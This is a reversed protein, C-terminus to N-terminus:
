QEKEEGLDLKSLMAWKRGVRVEASDDMPPPFLEKFFLCSSANKPAPRTTYHNLEHVGSQCGLTWQNLDWTHGECGELWATAPTGCVFYLFIPVSTLEPSIKTLCFFLLPPMKIEQCCAEVAKSNKKRKLFILGSSVAALGGRKASSSQGQALM